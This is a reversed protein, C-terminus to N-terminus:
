QLASEVNIVGHGYYFPDGLDTATNKLKERIQVNTMSPYKAKILAAAGAVHPSAMSTGNFSSYNNGPTTSLINVGPAM